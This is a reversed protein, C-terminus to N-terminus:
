LGLGVLLGAHQLGGGTDAREAGMGRQGGQRIGREELAAAVEGGPKAQRRPEATGAALGAGSADGLLAILRQSSQEHQAGGGPQALHLGAGFLARGPQAAHQGAPGALDHGDGLGGAGGADQPGHERVVLGIARWGDASGGLGKALLVAAVSPSIPLCVPGPVSRATMARLLAGPHYSGRCTYWRPWRCMIPRVFLGSVHGSRSRALFINSVEQSVPATWVHCPAHIVFVSDDRAPYDGRQLAAFSRM